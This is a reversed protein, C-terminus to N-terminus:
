AEASDAAATACSANRTTGQVDGVAVDVALTVADQLLVDDREETAVAEGVTVAVAESVVPAEELTVATAVTDVESEAVGVYEGEDESVAAGVGDPELVGELESVADAEAAEAECAEESVEEGDAVSQCSDAM